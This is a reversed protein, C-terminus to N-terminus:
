SYVSKVVDKKKKKGKTEVDRLVVPQNSNDSSEISKKLKANEVAEKFKRSAEENSTWNILREKVKELEKLEELSVSNEVEKEEHMEEKIEFVGEDIETLNDGLETRNRSKLIRQAKEAITEVFFQGLKLKITETKKIIIPILALGGAISHYTAIEKDTDLLTLLETASLDIKYQNNDSKPEM